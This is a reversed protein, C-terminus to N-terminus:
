GLTHCQVAAIQASFLFCKQNHFERCKLTIGSCAPFLCQFSCKLCFDFRSEIKSRILNYGQELGEAKTNTMLNSSSM